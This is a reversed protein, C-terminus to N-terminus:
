RLRRRRNSIRKKGTSGRLLDKKGDRVAKLNEETRLLLSSSLEFSSTRLTETIRFSWRPQIPVKM